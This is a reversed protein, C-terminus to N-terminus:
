IVKMGMLEGKKGSSVILNLGDDSKVLIAEKSTERFKNIGQESFKWVIALIVM